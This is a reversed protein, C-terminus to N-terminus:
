RSAAAASRAEKQQDIESNALRWGAFLRQLPFCREDARRVEVGGSQIRSITTPVDYDCEHLM